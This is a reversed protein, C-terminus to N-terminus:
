FCNVTGTGCGRISLCANFNSCCRLSCGAVDATPDSLTLGNCVSSCSQFDNNCVRVSQSGASCVNPTPALSQTPAIPNGNSRGQTGQSATGQTSTQALAAGQLLLVLVFATLGQKFVDRM